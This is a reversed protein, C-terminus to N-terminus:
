PKRIIPLPVGLRAFYQYAENGTVQRLDVEGDKNYFHAPLNTPIKVNGGYQKRYGDRTRKVKVKEPKKQKKAGYKKDLAAYMKDVDVDGTSEDEPLDESEDEAYEDNDMKSKFNWYQEQSRWAFMIMESKTFKEEVERLPM